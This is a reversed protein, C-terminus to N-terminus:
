RAPPTCHCSKLTSELEKNESALTIIDAKTRLQNETDLESLSFTLPLYIQPVTGKFM